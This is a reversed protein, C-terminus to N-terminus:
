GWWETETVIRGKADFYIWLGGGDFLANEINYEVFVIYGVIVGRADLIQSAEESLSLDFGEDSGNLELDSRYEEARDKVLNPLKSFRIPMVRDAFKTYELGEGGDEAVNLLYNEVELEEMERYECAWFLKEQDLVNVKVMVTFWNQAALRLYSTGLSGDALQVDVRYGEAAPLLPYAYSSITMATNELGVFKTSFQGLSALGQRELDNLLVSTSSDVTLSRLEQRNKAEMGQLQDSCITQASAGMSGHLFLFLCILHPLNKKM